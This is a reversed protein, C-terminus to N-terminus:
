QRSLWAAAKRPDILTPYNSWRMFTIVDVPVRFYDAVRQATWGKALKRGVSKYPLQLYTLGFRRSHEEETAIFASKVAAPSVVGIPGADIAERVQADIFTIGRRAVTFGRERDRWLYGERLAYLSASLGWAAGSHTGACDHRARGSKVLDLNFLLAACQASTMDYRVTLQDVTLNEHDVLM